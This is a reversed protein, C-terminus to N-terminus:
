KSISFSDKVEWNTLNVLKVMEFDLRDEFVTIKTYHYTDGLENYFDDPDRIVKYQQAGGGGTVVYSINNSVYREYNHCHGSFIIDPKVLGTSSYSELLDALKKEENRIPHATSKTHPPHHLSIFVFKSSTDNLKDVLWNYQMSGESHNTNSDLILFLSNGYTFSYWRRNDLFKFRDFYYKLPGKSDLSDKEFSTYEHNGLTPYFSINKRLIEGECLDFIKWQHSDGRVVSDGVKIVFNPNEEIVKNIIIDKEPGAEEQSDGFVIFSFPYTVNNLEFLPTNNPNEPSPYFFSDSEGKLFNIIASSGPIKHHLDSKYALAGSFFAIIVLVLLIILYGKHHFIKSLKM